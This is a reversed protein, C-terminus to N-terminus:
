GGGRRARSHCRGRDSHFPADADTTPCTLLTEFEERWQEEPYVSVLSIQRESPQIPQLLKLVGDENIVHIVRGLNTEWDRLM